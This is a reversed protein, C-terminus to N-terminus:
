FCYFCNSSFLSLLLLLLLISFFFDLNNTCCISFLLGAYNMTVSAYYFCFTPIPLTLVLLIFVNLPALLRALLLKNEFVLQYGVLLKRKSKTTEPAKFGNSISRLFSLADFTATISSIIFSGGKKSYGVIM